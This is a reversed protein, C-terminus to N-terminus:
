SRRSGISSPRIPGFFRAASAPMNTSVPLATPAAASASSSRASRSTASSSMGSPTPPNATNRARAYSADVRSSGATTSSSTRTTSRSTSRPPPWRRTASIKAAIHIPLGAAVAETAFIRRFDHPTFRLPTGDNATLSATEVLNDLLVRVYHHTFCHPSLGWWRQFLFPLPPSHLRDTGDYRSVLPIRQNGGRVRAIIAALVDALEPSVVLLRERDTKSPAVQMLPIVEGTGPLTYAVFARHTFELMEEIRVGTHRLVEVIAWTWFANDEALALNRRPRGDPDDAYIVGPRNIGKKTPDGALVSRHGQVGDFEFTEGAAVAAAAHLLGSARRRGADAAEILAPLVPALERTRQHM